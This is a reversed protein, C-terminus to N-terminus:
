PRNSVMSVKRDAQLGNHVREVPGNKLSSVVSNIYSEIHMNGRLPALGYLGIYEILDNGIDAKYLAEEKWARDPEETAPLSRTYMICENLAKESMGKIMAKRASRAEGDKSLYPWSMGWPYDTWLSMDIATGTNDGYSLSEIDFQYALFPMYPMLVNEVGTTGNFSQLSSYGFEERSRSRVMRRTAALFGDSLAYLDDKSAFDNNNVHQNCDLIYAEWQEMSTAQIMAEMAVNEALGKAAHNTKMAVKLRAACDVKWAEITM